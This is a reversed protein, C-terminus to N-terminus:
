RVFKGTNLLHEILDFFDAFLKSDNILNRGFMNITLGM